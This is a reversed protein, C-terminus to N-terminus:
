GLFHVLIITPLILERGEPFIGRAPKCAPIGNYILAIMLFGNYMGKPHINLFSYVLRPYDSTQFFNRKAPLFRPPTPPYLEGVGWVVGPNLSTVEFLIYM